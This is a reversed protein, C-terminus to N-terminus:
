LKLFPKATELSPEGPSVGFSVLVFHILGYVCFMVLMGVMGWLIAAKADERSKDAADLQLFKVIGYFFYLTAIAFALLILPNLILDDVNRLFPVITVVAANM